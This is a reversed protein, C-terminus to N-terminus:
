GGGGGHGSSSDPTETPPPMISPSPSLGESPSPTPTPEPTSTVEPTQTPRSTPRPTDTPQAARDQTPTPAQSPELSDSPEPSESPEPQGSAEPSESPTPSTSPSPSASPEPSPSASTSPSLSPTAEPSRGLLGALAGAGVAGVGVSGLVLLVVLAMAPFRAALPRGGTFAVRWLDGLAALAALPSRRRAAGLVAAVPRPAPERSVAAMVTEVFDPGPGVDERRALWEIERAAGLLEAELGPGLDAADLEGPRFQGPRQAGAM